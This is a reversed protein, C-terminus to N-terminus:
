GKRTKLYAIIADSEDMPKGDVVAFPVTTKDNHRAEIMEEKILPNTVDHLQYEINNENCFRKVKECFPCGPIVYLKMKDKNANGQKRSSMLVSLFVVAPILLFRM